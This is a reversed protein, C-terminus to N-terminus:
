RMANVNLGFLEIIKLDLGDEAGVYRDYFDAYQRTYGGKKECEEFLTILELKFKEAAEYHERQLWTLPSAKELEEAFDYGELNKFPGKGLSRSRWETEKQASETLYRQEEQTKQPKQELPRNRFQMYRDLVRTYVNHLDVGVMRVLPRAVTRREEIPVNIEELQKNLDDLVTMRERATPQGWRNSWAMTLYTVRASIASLRRLRSIIEEARDLSQRLKAEVGFTKIFELQPLFVVLTGVLFLSGLTIASGKENNFAQYVAGLLAFVAMAAVFFLLIDRVKDM